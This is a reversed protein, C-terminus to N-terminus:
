SNWELIFEVAIISSDKSSFVSCRYNVQEHHQIKVASTALSQRKVAEDMAIKQLFSHAVHLTVESYTATVTREGNEIRYITWM